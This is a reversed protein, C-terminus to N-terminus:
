DAYTLMTAGVARISLSQFGIAFNRRKFIRRRKENRMINTAVVTTAANHQQNRSGVKVALRKRFAMAMPSKLDASSKNRLESSRHKASQDSLRQPNRDAASNRGFVM